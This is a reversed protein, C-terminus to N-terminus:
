EGRLAELTERVAAAIRAREAEWVEPGPLGARERDASAREEVLREIQGVLRAREARLERLQGAAQAVLQELAELDAPV